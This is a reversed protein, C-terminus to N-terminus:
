TNKKNIKRFVLFIILLFVGITTLAVKGEGDWFMIQNVTFAELLLAPMKGIFTALSFNSISVIGLAATVNVLGSPVFPILRLSLILFFAESGTVSLLRKVFKWQRESQSVLSKIGRRYLQFSVICGVVEGIFSLLTGEWFGFAYINAATLFYSPIVAFISILVNLLISLVYSIEKYNYFLEIVLDKM